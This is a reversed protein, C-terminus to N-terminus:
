MTKIYRGDALLCRGLVEPILYKYKFMIIGGLQTIRGQSWTVNDIMYKLPLVFPPINNSRDERVTGTEKGAPIRTGKWM